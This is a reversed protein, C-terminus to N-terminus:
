GRAKEKTVGCLSDHEAGFADMGLRSKPEGTLFRGLLKKAWAEWVEEGPVELELGLTCTPQGLCGADRTLERKPFPTHTNLETDPSQSCVTARGTVQPLQSAARSRRSSNAKFRSSFQTKLKASILPFFFFNMLHSNIYVQNNFYSQFWLWRQGAKKRRHREQGGSIHCTSLLVSATLLLSM